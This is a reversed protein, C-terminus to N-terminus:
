LTIKPNLLTMKSMQQWICIYPMKDIKVCVNEWKNVDRFSFPNQRVILLLEYSLQCYNEM